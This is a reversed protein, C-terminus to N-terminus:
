SMSNKRNKLLNIQRSIPIFLKMITVMLKTAPREFQAEVDKMKEPIDIHQPCHEKCRRCRRCLSASTKNGLVGMHHVLYMYQADYESRNKFMNASNYLDFCGPIDVGAPCPMCYRCGTCPVTMIERYKGAARRVTDLEKETMSNPYAECATQINEDVQSIENMGSLAVTVEPHNWIWRLGWAAPTRKVDFENWIELVEPPINRVLNGGRLSEMVIVAIGKEAAYRLGETGAQNKEDLYNYQIQCIDWNYSDIIEKFTEVNDHFSFGANRIRGDKKAEDLFERVGLENIKEWGGKTLAHLLYYDIHDTRLKKLQIELFRDMDERNRVLWHPMKTAIRVKDRYGDALASGIFTESQEKHYPWATDIYNIGSDIAHRLIATAREDDITGDKEPLRMAGFGLVSLEDGSKPVKRYLM